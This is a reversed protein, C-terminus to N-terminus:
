DMGGNSNGREEIDGWFAWIFVIAFLTPIGVLAVVEGNTLSSYDNLWILIPRLIEM